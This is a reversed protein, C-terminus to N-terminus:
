NTLYFGLDISITQGGSNASIKLLHASNIALSAFDMTFSYTGNSHDTVPPSYPNADRYLFLDSGLILGPVGVGKLNIVNFSVPMTEGARYAGKFFGIIPNIKWLALNGSGVYFEAKGIAGALARIQWKGSNANQPLQFSGSYLGGSITPGLGFVNGTSNTINIVANTNQLYPQENKDLLKVRYFVTGCSSYSPKNTSVIPAIPLITIKREQSYIESSSNALVCRVFYEGIANATIAFANDTNNRINSFSTITTTLAGASNPIPGFSGSSPRYDIRSGIGRTSNDTQSNCVQQFSDGIEIALDTAPFIKSAIIKNYIKPIIALHNPTNTRFQLQSNGGTGPNTLAFYGVKISCDEGLAYEGNIVSTNLRIIAPAAVQTLDTNNSVTFLHTNQIPNGCAKWVSINLYVLGTTTPSQTETAFLWAGASITGTMSNITAFGYLPPVTNLTSPLVRPATVTGTTLPNFAYDFNSDRPRIRTALDIALGSTGLFRFDSGGVGPNSTTNLYYTDAGISLSLLLVLLAIKKRM